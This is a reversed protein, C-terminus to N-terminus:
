KNCFGLSHQCVIAWLSPQLYDVEFVCTCFSFCFCLLSSNPCIRSCSDLCLLAPAPLAVLKLVSSLWDIFLGMHDLQRCHDKTEMVRRSCCNTWCTWFHRGWAQTDLHIFVPKRHWKVLSLKHFIVLLLLLSIVSFSIWEPLVLAAGNHPLKMLHEMVVLVTCCILLPLVSINERVRLESHRTVLATYLFGYMHDCFFGWRVGGFGQTFFLQHFVSHFHLYIILFEIATSIVLPYLCHSSLSFLFSTTNLEEAQCIKSYKKGGFLVILVM